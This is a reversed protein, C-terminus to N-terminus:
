SFGEFHLNDKKFKNVLTGIEKEAYDGWQSVPMNVPFYNEYVRRIIDPTKRCAEKFNTLFLDTKGMKLYTLSKAAPINKVFPSQSHAAIQSIANLVDLGFQDFDNLVFTLAIDLGMMVQDRAFQLAMAFYRASDEYQQMALYNMGLMFFAESNRPDVKLLRKNINVGQEYCGKQHYFDSIESLTTKYLDLTSEYISQEDELEEDSIKRRQVSHWRKFAKKRNNELSNTLWELERLAEKKLGEAFLVEAYPIAQVADGGNDLYEKFCPKALAYEGIAHYTHAKTLLADMDNPNIALAFDCSELAQDYRQIICQAMALQTWGKNLYPQEVLVQTLVECMLDALENERCIEILQVDEEYKGLPKFVDIYEQIWQRACTKEWDKMGYQGNSHLELISSIIHIYSERKQAETPAGDCTERMWERWIKEARTVNGRQAYELQAVQYKVDSNNDADLENVIARAKDFQRQYIFTASKVILLVEEDPHIQLGMEIAEMAQKPRENILYYDAIDAFDEADFYISRDKEKRHEYSALLDKFEKSQFYDKSM